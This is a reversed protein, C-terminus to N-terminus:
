RSTSSGSINEDSDRELENIVKKMQIDWTLNNEVYKRIEHFNFELNKYWEVIKEIDLLKEDQSVQYVFSCNNFSKDIDSLIFPLGKASYEVNKLASGKYLNKRHAGLSSVGIDSNNYIKDLEEGLKFGHFIVIDQLEINEEVIRKLKPTEIGEGVVHFKLNEMGGNKKYQLLSYLFRDIGHWFSCNSVSIFNIGEHEKKNIIKIEELDIGNSINICPINWIVKDDSYTVIKDVYKYLKKRYIKDILLGINIKNVENDYPYTPIELIIKINYIKKIYKLFNLFLTNSRYYRIYIITIKKEEIYKRIKKLIFFTEVKRIIQLIKGKGISYKNLKINNIYFYNNQVYSRHLDNNLKKIAKEQFSIKKYVGIEEISNFSLYLVKEKM